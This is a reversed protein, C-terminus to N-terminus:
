AELVPLVDYDGNPPCGIVFASGQTESAVRHLCNGIIITRGKTQEPPPANPGVLIYTKRPKDVPKLKRLVNSLMSVCAACPDGDIIEIGEPLNIESLSKPPSAFTARPPDGVVEIDDIEGLGRDTARKIHSEALTGAYISAPDVGIARSATADVAVTDTGAILCNMEVPGVGYTDMAILGDIISLVPRVTAVLDVVCESVNVHHFHLMDYEHLLGMLNKMSLSVATTDHTKLKAVSIIAGVSGAVEALTVRKVSRGKRTRTELYRGSKLDIIEARTDRLADILGSENMVSMTESGIVSGDGVIARAGVAELAKVVGYIVRPDTAARGYEGSLNPKVLVNGGGTLSALDFNALLRGVGMAVEERSSRAPIRHIYVKSRPM